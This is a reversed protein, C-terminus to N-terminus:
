QEFFTIFEDLSKLAESVTEVSVDDGYYNLGNRIKRWRNFLRGLKPNELIDEIFYGISEHSQFKYGQEYGLAEAYQRIGEYLERFISSATTQTLPIQKATALALASQKKLNRARSINSTIELVFGEEISQKFKM